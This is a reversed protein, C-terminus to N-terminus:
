ATVLPPSAVQAAQHALCAQRFEHQTCIETIRYEHRKALTGLGISQGFWSIYLDADTEYGLAPHPTTVGCARAFAFLERKSALSETKLQWDDKLLHM